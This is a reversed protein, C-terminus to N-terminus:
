ASVEINFGISSLYEADLWHTEDVATVNATGSANPAHSSRLITRQRASVAYGITFEADTTIDLVSNDYCVSTDRGSSGDSNMSINVLEPMNAEVYTSDMLEISNTSINSFQFLKIATSSFKIYCSSFLPPYTSTTMCSNCKINFTCRVFGACYSSGKYFVDSCVGSFECDQFAFRRDSSIASTSSFLPRHTYINKIKINKLSGFTLIFIGFSSQTISYLNYITKGNGDINSAITCQPMNGDPYEDLINIDNGLKVYVPSSSSGLVSKEVLEDYTTVVFPDDITGTGTVSM